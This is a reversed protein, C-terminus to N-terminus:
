LKYKIVPRWEKLAPTLDNSVKINELFIFYM